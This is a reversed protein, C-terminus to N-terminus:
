AKGFANFLFNDINLPKKYIDLGYECDENKVYEMYAKTVDTPNYRPFGHKNVFYNKNDELYQYTENFLNRKSLRIFVLKNEM